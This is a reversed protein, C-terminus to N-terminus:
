LQELLASLNWLQTRVYMDLDPKEDLDEIISRCRDVRLNIDIPENIVHLLLKIDALVKPDLDEEEILEELIEHVEQEPNM